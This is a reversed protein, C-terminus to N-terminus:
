MRQYEKIKNIFYASSEQAIFSEKAESYVNIVSLKYDPMILTWGGESHYIKMGEILEVEHGEVDELIKRMVRGQLDIPCFVCEKVVHIDPVIALIQSIALFQIAMLELLQCFAYFANTQFPVTNLWKKRGNRRLSAHIVKDRLSFLDTENMHSFHLWKNQILYQHFMYLILSQTETLKGGTEDFLQFRSGSGNVKIAFHVKARKIEMILKEENIDQYLLCQVNLEACVKKLTKQILAPASVIVRLNAGIIAPLCLSHLLKAVYRDLLQEENKLWRQGIREKKRWQQKRLFQELKWELNRNILVGDEGYFQVFTDDKSGEQHRGIYVAGDAKESQVADQVFPVAVLHFDEVEFGCSLLHMVMQEKFFEAGEECGIIIKKYKKWLQSLAGAIFVYSREDLVSHPITGQVVFPYHYFFLPPSDDDHYVYGNSIRKEQPVSYLVMHQDHGLKKKDELKINADIVANQVTSSKGIFVDSLLIAEKICSDAGVIGNATVVAYPGIIAGKRVITHDGIFAPGRVTADEEIYVDKGIWVRDEMVEGKISFACTRDLLDQQAKYYHDVEGIDIWYEKTLYHYIPQKEFLLLPILDLSIDMATNDKMYGLMDREIIYIGTNIYDSLVEHKRPKEIVKEVKGDLRSLVTGYRFPTSSKKTIVTMIGNKKRHYNISENFDITTLADGSVVLCPGEIFSQANRLAGATGLPLEELFYSIHVGWRSGDGFYDKISAPLHSLTIAIDIIGHHKLHEIMYELVPKNLLPLMPKPTRYTLPRLRMGEGGALIIAKLESGERRKFHLSM